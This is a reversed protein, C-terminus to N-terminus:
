DIVKWTHRNLQYVKNAVSSVIKVADGSFPGAEHIEERGPKKM